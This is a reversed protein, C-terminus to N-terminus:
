LRYQPFYQNLMDLYKQFIPENKIEDAYATFDRYKAALMDKLEVNEAEILYVFPMNDILDACKVILANSGELKCRMFMDKNSSIKDKISRDFSTAKVINTVAEGYEDALKKEKYETDELIDHLIGSLVIDADYGHNYLNMGVRISHLIVPKENQGSANFALSLTIIAADMKKELTSDM